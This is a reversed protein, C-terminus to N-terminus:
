FLLLRFSVFKINSHCSCYTTRSVRVYFEYRTTNKKNYVFLWGFVFLRSFAAFSTMSIKVRPSISFVGSPDRICNQIFKVLPKNELLGRHRYLLCNYHVPAMSKANPSQRSKIEELSKKWNSLWTTLEGGLQDENLKHLINSQIDPKKLKWVMIVLGVIMFIHGHTKIAANQLSLRWKHKIWCENV